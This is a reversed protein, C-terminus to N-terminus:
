EKVFKIEDPRVPICNRWIGGNKMRFKFVSNSIEALEGVKKNVDDNDWFWCLGGVWKSYDTPPQYPEPTPIIQYAKIYNWNYGDADGWHVYGDVDIAWVLKGKVDPPTVAEGSWEIWGDNGSPEEREVCCQTWDNYEWDINFGKVEFCSKYVSKEWSSDNHALPEADLAFVSGDKNKVLFKLEDDMSQLVQQPTLKKITM